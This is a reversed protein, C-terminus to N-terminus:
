AEGAAASLFLSRCFALSRVTRFGPRGRMGVIVASGTARISCRDGQPDPQHHTHLRSHRDPRTRSRGTPGKATSVVPLTASGRGSSRCPGPGQALGASNTSAGAPAATTALIAPHRLRSRPQRPAPRSPQRRTAGRDASAATVARPRPHWSRACALSQARGPRFGTAQVSRPSRLAGCAILLSVVDPRGAPQDPARRGRRLM